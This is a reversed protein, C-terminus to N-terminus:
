CFILSTFSHLSVTKKVDIVSALLNFSEFAKSTRFEPIKQKIEEVEKEEHLKGLIEDAFVPLISNLCYDFSGIEVKQATQENKPHIM